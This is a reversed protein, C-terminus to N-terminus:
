VLSFTCANPLFCEFHSARPDTNERRPVSPNTGSFLRCFLCVAGSHDMMMMMKMMTMIFRSFFRSCYTFRPSSFFVPSETILKPASPYKVIHLPGESVPTGGLSVKSLCFQDPQFLFFLSFCRTSRVQAPTLFCSNPNVFCLLFGTPTTPNRLSCGLSMQENNSSCSDAMKTKSPM